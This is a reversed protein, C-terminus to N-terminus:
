FSGGVVVGTAQGLQPGVWVSTKPGDSKAPESGRLVLVTGLVLGGIAGISVMDAALSFQSVDNATATTPRRDFEAKANAAAVVLGVGVGVGIGGIAFAVYAAVPTKKPPTTPAISPASSPVATASPASAAASTASSTAVHAVEPVKPADFIVERRAYEGVTEERVVPTSGPFLVRVRRVGPDVAIAQGLREKAVVQTDLEIVADASITGKVVIFLVPIKKNLADLEEKAKKQAEVFAPKTADAETNVIRGYSARAALWQGLKEQCRAVMLEFTPAPILVIASQFSALAEGYQGANYQAEGTAALLLATARPDQGAASGSAALGAPGTQAHVSHPLTGAALGVTVMALFKKM